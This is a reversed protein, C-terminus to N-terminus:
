AVVSVVTPGCCGLEAVKWEVSAVGTEFFVCLWCVFADGTVAGVRIGCGGVGGEHRCRASM